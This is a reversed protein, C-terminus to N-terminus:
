QAATETGPQAPAPATKKPAAKKGASKKVPAAKKAVKKVAVKKVATKKIVVPATKAAHFAAWRKKTAESIAKRGAKSLKRKPKSTEPMAPAPASEGRIKAWRRHQAEKMHRRASASFKKRKGTPAEPTTATPKTGGDLMARLEVIQDDIRRKQSEFGEIAANIIETNFKIPMTKLTRVM